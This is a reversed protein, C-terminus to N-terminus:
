EGRPRGDPQVASQRQRGRAVHGVAQGDIEIEARKAAVLERGGAEGRARGAFSSRPRDRGRECQARAIPGRRKQEAVRAGLRSRMQEPELCGVARREAAIRLVMGIGASALLALATPTVGFREIAWHGVFPYAFAGLALLLAAIGQGPTPREFGLRM